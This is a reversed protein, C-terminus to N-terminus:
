SIRATPLFGPPRRHKTAQEFAYALRFLTPESWARGFFLLGMPLGFLEGAPVSISPYGAVAAPTSSGGLWHDGNVHDTLCAPGLTPAVLADLHHKDMVADIGETRMLRRCKALAELYEYSTLPGYGEAKLFLDQGFFPMEKAQNKRNYEVLEKLSRVPASSGLRGLYANLGDKFEYLLVTLEAENLKDVNPVEAPDVLEAGQKGLTELAQHMVGDVLDHFGFFNRAVGIKAGKLGNADLFKTYDSSAKEGASATASDEVDPGAIVSLLIAADRVTRTMPGATDQSFSIPVIGSRSVLGVTPKVGVIGNASSPSVISGDTETGIAAACLNAAVAAASGSSSGCPNRDLAYPNRTQGGRGSWGSTSYSCRINAWESLNTKGLILAGAQRLKKVVFADQAPKGGVLALSGATTAMKDATDINDKILIPIGHLPGRAGKERRERDLTDALALAEPNTEIVSALKPGDRDIRKIRELYKEALSRATERGSELRKHLDDITAENLEFADEVVAAALPQVLPASAALAAIGGLFHRRSPGTLKGSFDPM